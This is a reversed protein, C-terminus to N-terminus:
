DETIPGALVRDGSSEQNGDASERTVTITSFDRPSVGAWLVVGDGENFTGVAVLVDDDNRLWAQYFEGDDLRPLGPADLEIRWGSDTRTFEATGTQEPSQESTLAAELREADDAQGTVMVFAVLAAAAIGGGALVPRLWSRRHIPTVEAVRTDDGAGAVEAGIASVIRDELDISPEEWLSPDSLLSRLKELEARDAADLESGDDGELFAIRHDDGTV